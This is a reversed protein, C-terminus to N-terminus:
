RNCAIIHSEIKECSKVDMSHTRKYPMKRLYAQFKQSGYIVNPDGESNVLLTWCGKHYSLLWPHYQKQKSYCIHVQVYDKTWEFLLTWFHDRTSCMIKNMRLNKGNKDSLFVPLYDIIM